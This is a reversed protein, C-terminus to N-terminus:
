GFAASITLDSVVQNIKKMRKHSIEFAFCQFGVNDDDAGSRGPQGASEMQDLHASTLILEIRFIDVNEFLGALDAPMIEGARDEVRTRKTFEDGVELLGSRRESGDLFVRDIVEGLFTSKSKGDLRGEQTIMPVVDGGDVTQHLPQARAGFLGPDTQKGPKGGGSKQNFAGAHDADAGVVFAHVALSLPLAVKLGTEIQAGLHHHKGFSHAPRQGLLEGLLELDVPVQIRLDIRQSDFLKPLNRFPTEFGPLHDVGGSPRQGSFLEAATKDVPKRLRFDRETQDHPKIIVVRAKIRMFRETPELHVRKDPTQKFVPLHDAVARLRNGFAAVKRQERRCHFPRQRHTVRRSEQIRLPQLSDVQRELGSHQRRFRNGFGHRRIIKGESPQLLKFGLPFRAPHVLFEPLYPIVMLAELSSKELSHKVRRQLHDGAPPPEIGAVSGFGTM